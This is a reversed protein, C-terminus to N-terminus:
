PHGEQWVSIVEASLACQGIAFDATVLLLDPIKGMRCNPARMNLRAGYCCMPRSCANWSSSASVPPM